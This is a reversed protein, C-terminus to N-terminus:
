PLCGKEEKKGILSVKNIVKDTPNFYKHIIKIKTFQEVVTANIDIFDLPIQEDSKEILYDPDFYRM